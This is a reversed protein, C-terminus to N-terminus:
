LCEKFWAYQQVHGARGCTQGLANMVAGAFLCLYDLLTNTKLDLTLIEIIVSFYETFRGLNQLNFHEGSCASDFIEWCIWQFEV